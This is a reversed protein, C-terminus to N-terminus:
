GSLKVLVCILWAQSSAASPTSLDINRKPLFPSQMLIVYCLHLKNTTTLFTYLIELEFENRM